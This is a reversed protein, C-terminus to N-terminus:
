ARRRSRKKKPKPKPEPKRTLGFYMRELNIVAMEMAHIWVEDLVPALPSKDPLSASVAHLYVHYPSVVLHFLEHRLTKLLDEDAEFAEPNLVIRASNYDVLPTCRGAPICDTDESTHPEYGVVVRWHGLGLRNMLPELEKEVVARVASSDM